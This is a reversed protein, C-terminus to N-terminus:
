NSSTSGNDYWFSLVDSTDGDGNGDFGVMAETIDDLQDGDGNIDRGVM